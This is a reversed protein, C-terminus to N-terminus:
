RVQIFFPTLVAYAVFAVSVLWASNHGVTSNLGVGSIQWLCRFIKLNRKSPAALGSFLASRGNMACDPM